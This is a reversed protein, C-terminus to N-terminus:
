DALKGLLVIAQLSPHSLLLLGLHFVASSFSSDNGSFICSETDGPRVTRYFRQWITHCGCFIKRRAFRETISRSAEELRKALKEKFATLSKVSKKEGSKEGSTVEIPVLKNGDRILFDIDMVTKKTEKSTEKHYYARRGNARLNQAAMNELLM